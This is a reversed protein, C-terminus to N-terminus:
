KLTSPGMVERMAALLVGLSLSFKTKAVFYMPSFYMIVKSVYAQRHSRDPKLIPWRFKVGM